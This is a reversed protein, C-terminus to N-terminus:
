SPRQRFGRSQRQSKRQILKKGTEPRLENAQNQRQNIKLYEAQKLQNQEKHLYQELSLKLVNSLPEFIRNPELESNILRDFVQRRTVPQDLFGIPTRVIDNRFILWSAGLSRNTGPYQHYVDLMKNLPVRELLFYMDVFDKWRCNRRHMADIKMAGIDELSAMRVGDITEAKKVWPHPYSVMDISVNEFINFVVNQLIKQKEFGYNYKLHDAIIQADFHGNTFLDIDESVRHGIRLSLASGGVLHFNDFAEDSCIKRTLALAQTSLTERHLM